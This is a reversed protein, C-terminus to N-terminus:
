PTTIVPHAGLIRAVESCIENAGGVHGSLVAIANRGVSDVCVVAPDTHKDKVFPSIVRVCVGLAGVFILAKSNRFLEEDFSKITILQYDKLEAAIQESVLRGAENLFIIYKM